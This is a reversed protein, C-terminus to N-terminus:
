YYRRRYDDVGEDNGFIYPRKAPYNEASDEMGTAKWAEYGGERAWYIGNYGAYANAEFLVEELTGALAKRAEVTLDKRELQRNILDKVYTVDVTKRAKGAM